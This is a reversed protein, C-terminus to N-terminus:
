YQLIFKAYFAPSILLGLYQLYMGPWWFDPNNAYTGAPHFTENNDDLYSLM